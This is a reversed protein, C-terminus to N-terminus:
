QQKLLELGRMRASRARPNDSSETIARRNLLRAMPAVMPNGYADKQAGEGAMARFRHKVQRDELSHYAIVAARGGVALLAPLQDLLSTLQGLEDNVAIRLAQFTRTAKHIRGPKGPVAAAVVAAMQATDAFPQGALLARAVRRSHREEGYNRIIAMLEDETSQAILEAASLPADGDMRMDVPGPRMLSFGREGRDLQPSSVGLDAVLGDVRQGDMLRTLDAFTGRVPQFREGYEALRASAAALADPDRDLGFVRGSPGSAELLLATHGGGGLTVDLYVGGAKPAILDIAEPGLVTRHHFTLQM